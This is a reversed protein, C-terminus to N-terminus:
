KTLFGNSFILFIFYFWIQIVNLIFTLNLIFFQFSKACCSEEKSNKNTRHSQSDNHDRSLMEDEEKVLSLFKNIILYHKLLNLGTFENLTSGNNRNNLKILDLQPEKHHMPHNTSRPIANFIEDEDDEDEDDEGQDLLMLRDDLKKSEDGLM